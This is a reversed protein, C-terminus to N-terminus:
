VHMNPDLLTGELEALDQLPKQFLFLRHSRLDKESAKRGKAERPSRLVRRLGDRKLSKTAVTNISPHRDSDLYQENVLVRDDAGTELEEDELSRKVQKKSLVRMSNVIDELEQLGAQESVDVKDTKDARLPWGIVIQLMLQGLIALLTWALKLEMILPQSLLTDQM